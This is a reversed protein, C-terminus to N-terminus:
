QSAMPMEEQYSATVLGEYVKGIDVILAISGDGLITAGSVGQIHKFSKGLSKIVTQHDGIVTDVVFGTKHGDLETIVIQQFEPAEGSLGFFDRLSIYAVIEDRVRIVNRGHTNAVDHRTLEICERVNSLPIIFSQDAIKVLLGDIIALTLPLRLSMTSGKGVESTIEVTGRMADINRKVVDMGVGRGSVSSVKESTSFGPALILDFIEKRSLEAHEGIMGKQIAKARIVDPDIGKGDDIIQILVSDGSHKASLLIKGARPKGAAERVAPMEIGHDLSNRILHVLPDNLKEIVTKDLETEEGETVLDIEKGLDRSLDRVLRRFKNFITGIPLMRISITNDRLAWVLREVEEALKTMEPDNEQVATQTLRAQVTVLEGVLDVLIDLKDSPVRISAIAEAEGKKERAEQIHKQEQVAAEVVSPQVLGKEILMEGILKRSQMVADLEERSIDGKEVLIDGIRKIHVEGDDDSMRDIVDIHLDCDDEVFIFVDRLANIDKETSLLIDWYIYCKDTDITALDPIANSHAIVKAYGMANLEDLLLVPNVGHLFIDAHPKFRIRYTTLDESTPKQEKKTPSQPKPAAEAHETKARTFGRFFRLIGAAAPDDLTISDDELMRKIVDTSTLSQDIIAQSVQLKGGRVLDYATEIDHVFESLTKFGFMAGSGKITHMARFIKGVVEMDDPTNELELLSSELVELLEYAEQKFVEQPNEMM